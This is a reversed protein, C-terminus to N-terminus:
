RVIIKKSLQMPGSQGRLFYIGPPLSLTEGSFLVENNGADFPKEERFVLRGSADIIEWRMTGSEFGFFSVQFTGSNPNPYVAFSYDSYNEQHQSLTTCTGPLNQDLWAIRNRLWNKLEDIEEQYTQPIPNPNPWVYQGLIPWRTFNRAQSEDLYIRMSDIYHFLKTTDLLNSRWYTWQCKVAETFSPDQLLRGWWFPVQYGDNPCVNGFQYAWGTVSSGCCYNANAWAIDYDWVPGMTLKGGKSYKDKFFYTSIRYGDVNKSLENLLFYDAFSYHKAYRKYGTQPNTFNSGSLATEFSDVYQQIYTRQQSTISDPKPYEYQIRITQGNPSVAPPYPSTWFSGGNGTFKDIKLIYGGTLNDGTNETPKLKAIKVRNKDRKIKEMLVYVGQYQGNLVVEVYRTRAAYYGMNESIYYALVNNLLSKDSYNASLIWDSETPMGLLATDIQNGFIDTTEFGYSKKPFMQSSSGRQEIMVKGNYHNFPDTMYNRNGAGNFIIGMDVMIKPNDPINQSNTNIVVIPLNSSTFNVQALFVAPAFLLILFIKM